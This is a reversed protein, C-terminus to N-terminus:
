RLRIRYVTGEGGETSDVWAFTDTDLARHLGGSARNEGIPDNFVSTTYTTTDLLLAQSSGDEALSSILLTANDTTLAIGAPQGLTIGQLVREAAGGEVRFVAGGAAGQGALWTVGDGGRAVGGPSDLPTTGITEFDQTSPTYRFAGVKGTEPDFGSFWLVEVGDEVTLDLGTPEYAGAGVVPNVGGTLLSISALTPGDVGTGTVWARPESPSLVLSTLDRFGGSLLAGSAGDAEFLGFDGPASAAVFWVSAADASPAADRPTLLADAAITVEPGTPTVDTDDTVLPGASETCAVLSLLAFSIATPRPSSRRQM